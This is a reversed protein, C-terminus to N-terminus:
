DETAVEDRLALVRAYLENRPLKTTEGVQKAADRPSLGGALADRLLADADLPHEEPVDTAGDLIVVCEGKPPNDRYHSIVEDFTGRQFEEFRKTIERAVVVRRAGLIGEAIAMKQLERLTAELRPAAEYLVVTYSNRVVARLRTRRDNTRPLFGEFVFRGTPLGSAIIGAIAACAGPIPEVRTGQAVAAQVLELGPDSLCPTGADSV